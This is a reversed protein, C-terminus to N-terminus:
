KVKLRLLAISSDDTKFVTKGIEFVMNSHVTQNEKSSELKEKERNKDDYESMDIQKVKQYVIEVKNKKLESNLADNVKFDSVLDDLNVHKTEFGYDPNALFLSAYQNMKVQKTLQSFIHTNNAFMQLLALIVVSIIMVAVMVEILTFARKARKCM